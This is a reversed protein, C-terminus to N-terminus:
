ASPDSAMEVGSINSRAHVPYAGNETGPSQAEGDAMVQAATKYVSPRLDIREAPVM